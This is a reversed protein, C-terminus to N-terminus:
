FITNIVYHSKDNCKIDKKAHTIIRKENEFYIGMEIIYHLCMNLRINREFKDKETQKRQNTNLKQIDQLKIVKRVTLLSVNFYLQEKTEKESVQFLVIPCRVQLLNEVALEHSVDLLLQRADSGFEPILHRRHLFLKPTERAAVVSVPLAHEHHLLFRSNPIGNKKESKAM